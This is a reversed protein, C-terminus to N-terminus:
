RSRRVLRRRFENDFEKKTLILCILFFRNQYCSRGEYQLSSAATYTSSVILLHNERAGSLFLTLDVRQEAEVAVFGIRTLLVVTFLQSSPSAVEGLARRRTERESVCESTAATADFSCSYNKKTKMTLSSSLEKLDVKLAFFPM